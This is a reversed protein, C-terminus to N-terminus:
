KSYVEKNELHLHDIIAVIVADCVTNNGNISKSASDGFSVAVVDGNGVGLSDVCLHIKGKFDHNHSLEQALLFKLGDLDPHKISADAKGIVKCVKM